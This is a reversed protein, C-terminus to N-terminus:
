QLLRVAFRAWNEFTIKKQSSDGHLTTSLVRLLAIREPGCEEEDEDDHDHKM